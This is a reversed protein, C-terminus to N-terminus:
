FKNYIEQMENLGECLSVMRQHLDKHIKYALQEFEEKTFKSFSSTVFIFNFDKLKEELISIKHTQQDNVWKEEKLHKKLLDNHEKIQRM